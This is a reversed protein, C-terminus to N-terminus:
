RAPIMGLEAAHRRALEDADGFLDAQDDVEAHEHHVAGGLLKRQPLARQARALRHEGTDIHGRALQQAMVQDVVDAGHQRAGRHGAARELEFEGLRQHHLIRLVGRLHQLPDALEAGPQREVVEAGAM